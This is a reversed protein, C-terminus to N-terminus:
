DTARVQLRLYGILTATGKGRLSPNAQVIAQMRTEGHADFGVPYMGSEETLRLVIKLASEVNDEM